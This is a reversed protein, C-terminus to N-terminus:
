RRASWGPVRRPRRSLAWAGLTFVIVSVLVLSGIGALLFGLPGPLKTRVTAPWAVRPDRVHAPLRWAAALAQGISVPPWDGHSVLAALQGTLWSWTCSVAALTLYILLIVDGTNEFLDEPQRTQRMLHDGMRENAWCRAIHACEAHTLGIERALRALRHHGTAPM